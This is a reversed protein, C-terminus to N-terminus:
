EGGRGNGMQELIHEMIALATGLQQEVRQIGKDAGIVLPELRAVDSVQAGLADIKNRLMRIGKRDTDKDELDQAHHELLMGVSGSIDKMSEELGTVSQELETLRRDCDIEGSLHCERSDSM